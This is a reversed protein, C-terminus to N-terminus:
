VRCLRGNQLPLQPPAEIAWGESGPTRPAWFVQWPDREKKIKHLRLYNSGFFANQWDPEQIDAENYYAGGGPTAARLPRMFSELRQHLADAESASVATYDNPDFVDAHMISKRWAPNVGAPPSFGGVKETPAMNLGHFVYGGEVSARAADMAARFLKHNEWTNRPFLRSGFRGSSPRGGGGGSAFKGSYLATTPTNPVVPIGLDNLERILPQVFTAAETVTFGPLQVRVQMLFSTNNVRIGNTWLYGGADATPLGFKFVADFGQWFVTNNSITPGPGPGSNTNGVTFTFSAITLNLAPHAKVVASTVVGYTGIKIDADTKDVWFYSPWPLCESGGGGRLAFFLDPNTKADATVARGDATVIQLSLAQDVGLGYKSSLPSHGGGTIYGGYAGVTLCSGALLAVNHDAAHSWAEWIQLGAGVRAAAGRYNGGVQSYSPLLEFDKLYHTWV